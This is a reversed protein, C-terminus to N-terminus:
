SIQFNKNSKAQRTQSDLVDEDLSPDRIIMKITFQDDDVLSAIYDEMTMTSATACTENDHDENVVHQESGCSFLKEHWPLSSSSSSPTLVDREQKKHLMTGAAHPVVVCAVHLMMCGVHEIMSQKTSLRTSVLDYSIKSQTFPHFLTIFYYHVIV